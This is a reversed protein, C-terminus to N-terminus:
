NRITESRFTSFTHCRAEAKATESAYRGTCSNLCNTSVGNRGQRAELWWPVNIGSLLSRKLLFGSMTPGRYPDSTIQLRLRYIYDTFTVQLLTSRKETGLAVYDNYHLRNNAGGRKCMHNSTINHHAHVVNFLLNTRETGITLGRIYRARHPRCSTAQQIFSSNIFYNL